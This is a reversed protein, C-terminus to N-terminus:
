ALVVENDHGNRAEELIVPFGFAGDIDSRLRECLIGVITCKITRDPGHPDRATQARVLRVIELNVAVVRKLARESVDGSIHTHAGEDNTEDSEDSGSDTDHVDHQHAYGFARFLNANALGDAGAAAVDQPLEQGLGNEDGLRPTNQSNNKPNDDAIQQ